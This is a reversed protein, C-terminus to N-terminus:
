SFFHIFHDFEKSSITRYNCVLWTEGHFSATCHGFVLLELGMVRPRLRGYWPSPMFVNTREFTLGENQKTEPAHEPNPTMTIDDISFSRILVSSAALRPIILLM